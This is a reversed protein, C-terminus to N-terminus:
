LAVWGDVIAGLLLLGLQILSAHFNAIAREPGPEQVLAVSRWLFLVGGALAFGLYIWGMGFLVPVLSSLLGTDM